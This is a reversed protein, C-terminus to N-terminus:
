SVREENTKNQGELALGLREDLVDLLKPHVGIRPIMTTNIASNEMAFKQVMSQLRNILQGAFLLYPVVLLREPKQCSVEQLIEEVRPSAVSIFCTLVRGFHGDEAFQRAITSFDDIADSHSSGRGVFVVTTQPATKALSSDVSLAHQLIIETIRPHVGLADAIIFTVQPFDRQVKQVVDAIDKKVHGARLLFVPLLIVRRASRAAAALATALLPEALELYGFTVLRDPRQKRYQAVLDEFEVNAAAIRSGHGVILVATGTM